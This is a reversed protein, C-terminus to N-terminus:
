RPWPTRVRYGRATLAQSAARPDMTRVRLIVECAGREGSVTVLSAITTGAGEVLRVVEGLATAREPLAVDLRSSPEGAGMARVFIGLIDTETVIGVLRGGKTVPLASIRESVMVRAAEEIPFTPGTTIVTRTMVERVPATSPMARKVDRDSVIGLLEDDEVVLVHRVGRALLLRAAEALPADPGVTILRPQMVDQVLM